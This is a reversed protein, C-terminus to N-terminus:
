YLCVDVPSWLGPTAFSELLDAGCLLKIREQGGSQDAVEQFHDLIQRTPKWAGQECEWPDFRSLSQYSFKNNFKIAVCRIWNSGQLALEM